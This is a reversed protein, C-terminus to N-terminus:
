ICVAYLDALNANSSGATKYIAIVSVSSVDLFFQPDSLIDANGYMVSIGVFSASATESSYQTKDVMKWGILQKGDLLNGLTDSLVGGSNFTAFGTGSAFSAGGGNINELIKVYSFNMMKNADINRSGGENTVVRLMDGDSLSEITQLENEKM